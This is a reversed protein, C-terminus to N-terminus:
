PPCFSWHNFISVLQFLTRSEHTWLLGLPAMENHLSCEGACVQPSQGLGWVAFGSHARGRREGPLSRAQEEERCSVAIAWTAIEGEKCCTSGDSFLPTYELLQTAVLVGLHIRDQAEQHHPLVCAPLKQGRPQDKSKGLPGTHHFLLQHFSQTGARSNELLAGQPM